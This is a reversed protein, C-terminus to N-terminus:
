VLYSLNPMMNVKSMTMGKAINGLLNFLMIIVRLGPINAM